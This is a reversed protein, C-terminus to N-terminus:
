KAERRVLRKVWRLLYVVPWRLLSAGAAMFLIAVWPGNEYTLYGLLPIGVAMLVYARAWYNDKSPLMASVNAVILWLCGLIISLSM